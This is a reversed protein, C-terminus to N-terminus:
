IVSFLAIIQIVLIAPIGAVFYWHRTKHRFVYMGAWAGASGGLLSVAFLTREPIRWRHKKAREKDAHMLFFGVANVAILYIVGAQKWMKEERVKRGYLVFRIRGGQIFFPVTFRIWLGM